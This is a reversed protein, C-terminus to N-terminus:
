NRTKLAFGTLELQDEGGLLEEKFHRLNLAPDLVLAGAHLHGVEPLVLVAGHLQQGFM